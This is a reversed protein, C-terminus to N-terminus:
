HNLRKISSYSKVQLIPKGNKDMKSVVAEIRLRQGPLIGELLHTLERWAILKIEGTEDGVILEAKNVSTGDRTTIVEIKTQSLAIVEISIPNTYNKIDGIKRTLISPKPYSEDDKIEILSNDCIFTTPSIKRADCQIMCGAIMNVLKYYADGMVILTYFNGNRDVVLTSAFLRKESDEKTPGISLIRFNLKEYSSQISPITQGMELIQVTTSEDGHLELEGHPLLKAKVNVLRVISNLPIKQFTETDMSWIAVRIDKGTASTLFLQVVTGLTGNARTFNSIRPIFRMLGEVVLYNEPNKIDDINKSIKEITPIKSEISDDKVLEISGRTGVNLVARGDLSPKVYGKVIRILTNPLIGLKEILDTKDDWLITKVFTDKDFIILNRYYGNSGDKKTYQRTPYIAFVRAVVTIENAGIYLDKLTLDSSSIYELSVGLDAAVLFIAGTDTLYGGGVAKKKEEILKLLTSEDLEPKQKLLEQILKKFEPM